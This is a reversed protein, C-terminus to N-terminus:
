PLRAFRLLRAVGEHPSTASVALRRVAGSADREFRMKTAMGDWGGILISFEDRELPLVTLDATGRRKLVLAGGVVDLNWIAELDESFWRGAYEGLIGPTPKWIEAESMRVMPESNPEDNFTFQARLPAGAGADTFAVMYAEPSGDGTFKGNGRYTFTQLTDGLREVLQGNVADFREIEADDDRARYYGVYRALQEAPLPAVPPARFAAEAPEMADGLYAEAVQTALDGPRLDDRNCLTALGLRQAPFRMVETRTGRDNSGRFFMPVGRHRTKRIGFAYPITDGNPLTPRELLKAVLPLRGAAAEDLAHDWRALDTISAYLNNGGPIRSDPFTLRLTDRTTLHGFAREPIVPSRIDHVRSETMGLPVLVDRELYDGFPRGSAREIIVALLLYDSHSYEHRTGPIFNLERQGAILGLFEASTAVERAGFEVLVAYDRIGSTHQLLDQIRIPTGYDRLEPIYRRIDDDLSLRGRDALTLAALATFQKSVSGLGFLSHVTLPRRSEVDAVGFSKLVAPAGNRYVGVVCGPQGAAVRTSFISDVRANPAGDSAASDCGTALALFLTLPLRTRTM